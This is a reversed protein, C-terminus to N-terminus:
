RRSDPITDDDPRINGRGQFLRRRKWPLGAVRFTRLHRRDHNERNAADNERDSLKVEAPATGGLILRRYDPRGQYLDTARTVAATIISQWSEAEEGQYPQALLADLEAAFRDALAAYVVSINPYFHYASAPPIDAKHAIDYLSIEEPPSDGLLEIAADLLQERRALGRAQAGRKRKRVPTSPSSAPM